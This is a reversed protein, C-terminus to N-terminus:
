NAGKDKHKEKEYYEEFGKIYKQIEEIPRQRLRRLEAPHKKAYEIRATDRREKEKRLDEMYKKASFSQLEKGSLEGIKRLTQLMIIGTRLSDARARAIREEKADLIGRLRIIEEVSRELWFKAKGPNMNALWESVELYQKKKIAKNVKRLGSKTILYKPKFFEKSSGPKIEMLKDAVLEKLYKYITVKSFKGTGRGTLTGVFYSSPYEKQDAALYLIAHEAEERASEGQM